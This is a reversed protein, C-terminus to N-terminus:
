KDETNKLEKRKEYIICNKCDEPKVDEINTAWCIHGNRTTDPSGCCGFDGVEVMNITRYKCTDYKEQKTLNEENEM